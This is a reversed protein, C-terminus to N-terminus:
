EAEPLLRQDGVCHYGIFGNRRILEIYPIGVRDDLYATYHLEVQDAIDRAMRTADEYLHPDDMIDQEYQSPILVMIDATLNETGYQDISARLASIILNDQLKTQANSYPVGYDSLIDTIIYRVTNVVEVEPYLLMYPTAPLHTMVTTVYEYYSTRHRDNATILVETKLPTRKKM